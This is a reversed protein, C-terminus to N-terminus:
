PDRYPHLTPKLDFLTLIVRELLENSPLGKWALSFEDSQHNTWECTAQEAVVRLRKEQAEALKGIGRVRTQLGNYDRTRLPFDIRLLQGGRELTITGSEDTSFSAPSTV